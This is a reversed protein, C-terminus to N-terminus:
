RIVTAKLEQTVADGDGVRVRVAAGSVARLFAPNRWDRLVGPVDIASPAAPAEVVAVLLYDGAPVRAFTYAGAPTTGVSLFTGYDAWGAPDAPMLLVTAAKEPAGQANRVNGKVQAPRDTFTAIVGSIEDDKLEIPARSLDRGQWMASKLVWPATASGIAFSGMAYRGAPVSIAFTGSSDVLASASSGRDVPTLAVRVQAKQLRALDEAGPEGAGDFRM